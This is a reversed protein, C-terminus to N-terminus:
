WVNKETQWLKNRYNTEDFSVENDWFGFGETLSGKRKSPIIGESYTATTEQQEIWQYLERIIKEDNLRTIWSIINYKIKTTQMDNIKKNKPLYVIKRIEYL